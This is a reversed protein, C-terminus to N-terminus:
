FPVDEDAGSNDYFSDAPSKPDQNYPETEINLSMFKVGNKSTKLWAAVNCKDGNANTWNGTYDPHKETTKKDNKFLSGQGPKQEFAM